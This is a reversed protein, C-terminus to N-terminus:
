IDSLPGQLSSLGKTCCHLWKWASITPSICRLSMRWIDEWIRGSGGKPRIWDSALSSPLRASAAWLCWGGQLPPSSLPLIDLRLNCSSALTTIWYQSWYQSSNQALILTYPKLRLTAEQLIQIEDQLCHPYCILKMGPALESKVVLVSHYSLNEPHWM